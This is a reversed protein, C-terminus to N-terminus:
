VAYGPSPGGFVVSGVGGMKIVANVVGGVIMVAVGVWFVLVSESAVLVGDSFVTVWTVKLGCVYLDVGRGRCVGLVGVGECIGLVVRRGSGCGM